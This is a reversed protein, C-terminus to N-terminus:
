VPNKSKYIKVYTYYLIKPILGLGSYSIHTAYVVGLSLIVEYWKKLVGTNEKNGTM